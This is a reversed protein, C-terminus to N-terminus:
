RTASEASKLRAKTLKEQTNKADQWGKQWDKRFIEWLQDGASFPEGERFDNQGAQYFVSKQKM